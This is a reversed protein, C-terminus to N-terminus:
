REEYKKFVVKDVTEGDENCLFMTGEHVALTHPVAYGLFSVEYFRGNEVDPEDGLIFTIASNPPGGYTPDHHHFDSRPKPIEEWRLHSVKDWVDVVPVRDTDTRVIKLIM